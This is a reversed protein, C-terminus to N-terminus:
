ICPFSLKCLAEIFETKSRLGKIEIAAEICKAKLEPITFKALRIEEETAGVPTSSRSRESRRTTRQLPFFGKCQPVKECKFSANM